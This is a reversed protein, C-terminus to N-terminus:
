SMRYVATLTRSSSLKVRHTRAGGDSWRVFRYARGGITQKLPASVTVISDLMATYVFPAKGARSGAVLQAGPPTSKIALKATQPYVLRSVTRSAGTSDTATLRVEVHSPYEHEPVTFGGHGGDPRTELTHAHCSKTGSCHHLVFRWSLDGDALAGEEPDDARGQFYLHENASFRQGPVPHDIVPLPPQNGAQVRTTALGSAGKTDTVRVAVAYSGAASYTRTVESGRGDDFAGDGDLDWRYSLTQGDADHSGRASFSVALPLAGAAPTISLRALPPRNGAFHQLRLIRGSEIDVGFLDGQPGRELDVLPLNRAVLRALRPEGARDKSFAFLCRSSYDALFLAGQFAAPYPRSGTRQYFALGSPASGNGDCATDPPNSRPYSIFPTALLGRREGAYLRECLALEAGAFVPQRSTGEYCPWGFNMLKGPRLRNVEEFRTWGPEAIFVVGTQPQIDLRYPNRLGYAVIADDDPEGGTLPNLLAQGTDPSVRIVTGDYSTADGPTMLDQARLSGGERPPDQCPNLPTPSGVSGGFQGYDVGTWNGGEGASAYLARGPGFAIDGVVHSTFQHCWRDKVLVQEGSTLENGAGVRLRSLVGTVVCGDELAGPPDACSDGWVPPTRGPPADLSYLLYLFPRAPFDPDLEIALLGRDWYDHVKPRIDLLLKPARDQLSRYAFVRGAKEAVFARGDRAFSVAIPGEHEALVPTLQFREVPQPRPEALGGQPTDAGRVTGTAFAGSLALLLLLPARRM